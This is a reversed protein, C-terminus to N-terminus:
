WRPPATPGPCEDPKGSAVVVSTDNQVDRVAVECSRCWFYVDDRLGVM